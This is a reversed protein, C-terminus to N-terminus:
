CNINRRKVRPWIFMIVLMAQLAAVMKRSLGFDQVVKDGMRHHVGMPARDCWGHYITVGMLLQNNGDKGGIM